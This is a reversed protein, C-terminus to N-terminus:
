FHLNHVKYDKVEKNVTDFISNFKFKSTGDMLVAVKDQNSKQFAIEQLSDLLEKYYESDLDFDAKVTNIVGDNSIFILNTDKFEDNLLTGVYYSPKIFYKNDLENIFANFKKYINGNSLLLQNIDLLTSIVRNDYIVNECEAEIISSDNCHVYGSSIITNEKGRIMQLYSYIPQESNTLMEVTLVNKEKKYNLLYDKFLHTYINNGDVIFEIYDTHAKELYNDPEKQFMSKLLRSSSDKMRNGFTEQIVEM